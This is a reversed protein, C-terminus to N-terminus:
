GRSDDRQGVNYGRRRTTGDFYIKTSKGEGDLKQKVSALREAVELNLHDAQAQQSAKIKENHKLMNNYMEEGNRWADTEYLKRTVIEPSPVGKGVGLVPMVNEGEIQYWAGQYDRPLKIYVVWDENQPNYGFSLREDYEKVARDVILADLNVLGRGPVLINTPAKVQSM